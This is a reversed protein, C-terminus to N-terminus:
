GLAEEEEAWSGLSGPTIPVPMPEAPATDEPARILLDALARSVPEAISQPLRGGDRLIEDLGRREQVHVPGLVAAGGLRSGSLDAFSRTLEARGKATKASRNLVVLIREPPVGHERLRNVTRVLGHMGKIGPAGVVVVADARTAVTRAMVNREEVDISGCDAEGELDDDVDAV